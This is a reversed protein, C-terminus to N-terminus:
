RTGLVKTPGLLRTLADVLAAGRMGARVATTSM